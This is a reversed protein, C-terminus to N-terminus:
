AEVRYISQVYRYMQERSEEANQIADGSCSQAPSTHRPARVHPSTNSIADKLWLLSFIGSLVGDGEVERARPSREQGQSASLHTPLSHAVTKQGNEM